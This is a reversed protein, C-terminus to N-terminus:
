FYGDRWMRYCTRLQIYAVPLTRALTLASTSPSPPQTTGIAGTCSTRVLRDLRCVLIRYVPTIWLYLLELCM